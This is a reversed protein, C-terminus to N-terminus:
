NVHDTELEYEELDDVMCSTIKKLHEERANFWFKILAALILAMWVTALVYFIIAATFIGIILKFTMMTEWSM